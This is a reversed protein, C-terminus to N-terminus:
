LIYQKEEYVICASNDNLIIDKVAYKTHNEKIWENIKGELAKYDGLKGLIFKVQIMDDFGGLTNINYLGKRVQLPRNYM